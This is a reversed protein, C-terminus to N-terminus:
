FVRFYGFQSDTIKEQAQFSGLWVLFNGESDGGGGGGGGWCASIIERYAM